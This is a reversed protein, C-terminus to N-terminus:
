LAQDTVFSSGCAPIENIIETLGHGRIVRILERELAWFAPDM